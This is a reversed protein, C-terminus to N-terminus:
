HEEAGNLIISGRWDAKQTLFGVRDRGIGVGCQSGDVVVGDSEGEM